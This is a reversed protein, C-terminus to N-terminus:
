MNYHPPVIGVHMEVFARHLPMHELVCFVSTFCRKRQIISTVPPGIGGKGIKWIEYQAPVAGNEGVEM